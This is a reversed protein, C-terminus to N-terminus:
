QKSRLMEFVAIGYKRKDYIEFFETSFSDYDSKHEYIIIGGDNLLNREYIIKLLANADRYNYPPDFFIVDYKDATKKLFVDASINNVNANEKILSLNSKLIKISELSSDVFTVSSAGRSIAEIGISGTGSFMDLFNSNVVKLSLINFLAEKARDSTPRIDDGSFSKLVRGRHKGSIIRM